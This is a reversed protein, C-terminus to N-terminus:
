YSRLWLAVDDPSTFDTLAEGLAELESVLLTMIKAETQPAIQGVRRSLLRLIPSRAEQEIGYEIGQEIWSTVIQM